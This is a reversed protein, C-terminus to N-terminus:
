GKWNNLNCPAERREAAHGTIRAQAEIVGLSKGVVIKVPYHVNLRFVLLHVTHPLLPKYGLFGARYGPEVVKVLGWGEEHIGFLLGCVCKPCLMVVLLLFTVLLM